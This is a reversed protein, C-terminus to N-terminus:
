YGSGPGPNNVRVWCDTVILVDGQMDRLKGVAIITDGVVMKNLDAPVAPLFKIKGIQVFPEAQPQLTLNSLLTAKGRFVLKATGYKAMAAQPDAAWDKYVTVVDVEVPAAELIFTDVPPTFPHAQCAGSVGSMLALAALILVALATQHRRSQRKPMNNM